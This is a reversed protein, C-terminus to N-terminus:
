KLPAKLSQRLNSLENKRHKIERDWQMKTEKLRQDANQIRQKNFGVRKQARKTSHPIYAAMRRNSPTNIERLDLNESHSSTDTTISPSLLNLGLLTQSSADFNAASGRNASCSVSRRLGLLPSVAVTVPRKSVKPIGIPGNKKALPAPRAKFRMVANGSSTKISSNIQFKQELGKCQGLNIKQPLLNSIETGPRRAGLLPSVPVTSRRKEVKRIGIMGGRYSTSRNKITNREKQIRVDLCESEKRKVDDDVTKKTEDECKEAESRRAGLLPSVPITSKKKEVKRIGIMGGRSSTSPMPLARFQKVTDMEKQIQFDLSEKTEMVAGVAKETSEKIEKQKAVLSDRARIVQDKRRNAAGRLKEMFAHSSAGIQKRASDININYPSGISNNSAKSQFSNKEISDIERSLELSNSMKDEVSLEFKETDHDFMDKERNDRNEVCSRIGYTYSSQLDDMDKKSNVMEDNIELVNEKPPTMFVEEDGTNIPSRSIANSDPITQSIVESSGPVCKKGANSYYGDDLSPDIEIKSNAFRPEDSSVIGGSPSDPSIDIFDISSTELLGSFRGHSEIFGSEHGNISSSTM